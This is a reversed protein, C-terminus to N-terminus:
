PCLLVQIKKRIYTKYMLSYNINALAVSSHRLDDTAHSTAIENYRQM